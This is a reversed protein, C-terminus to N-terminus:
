SYLKLSSSKGDYKSLRVIDRPTINFNKLIGGFKRNFKNFIGSSKTSFIFTGTVKVGDLSFREHNVTEEDGKEKYIKLYKLENFLSEPLTIIKLQRSKHDWMEITKDEKISEFKLLCLNYPELGLVYMAHLLVADEYRTHKLLTEYFGLLRLRNTKLHSSAYRSEPKQFYEFKLSPPYQNHVSFLYRKIINVHKILTGWVIFNEKSTDFSCGSKFKLYNFYDDLKSEPSFQIFDNIIQNYEQSTSSKISDTSQLFVDVNSQQKKNLEKTKRKVGMSIPRHKQLTKYVNEVDDSLSNTNQTNKNENTISPPKPTRKLIKSILKGYYNNSEYM